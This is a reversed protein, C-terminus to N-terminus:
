ARPPRRLIAWTVAHRHAGILPPHAEEILGHHVEVHQWGASISELHDADRLYLAGTPHGTPVPLRNNFTAVILAGGPRLAGWARAHVRHLQAEDLCHYLGYALVLDYGRGPLALSTVDGHFLEGRQPSRTTALRRRAATLALASSDVGDVRWGLGELYVLNKGDGCGLDLARGPAYNRAAQVVMRGPRAPWALEKAAYLADYPGITTDSTGAMGM